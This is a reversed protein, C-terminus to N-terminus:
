RRRADTWEDSEIGPLTGETGDMSRAEALAARYGAECQERVTSSQTLAYSIDRALRWSLAEVFCPDWDAESEHRYIYRIDLESEDTRLKRGEIVHEIDNPDTDLIKLCDNPLDYEYAYGWEPEDSTPAITVRKIAFNWPHARLTADRATDYIANLLVARKVDQTIASIRDAGVKVLAM